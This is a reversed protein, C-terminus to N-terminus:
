PTARYQVRVPGGTPGTFRWTGVVRKVCATVQPETAAEPVIEVDSTTGPLDITFRLGLAPIELESPPVQKARAAEYRCDRLSSMRNAVEGDLMERDLKGRRPQDDGGAASHRQIVNEAGVAVLQQRNIPAQGEPNANAVRGTEFMAPLAPFPRPARDIVPRAVSAGDNADASPAQARAPSAAVTALSGAVVIVAVTLWGLARM